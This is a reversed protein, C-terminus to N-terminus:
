QFRFTQFEDEGATSFLRFINFCDITYLLFVYVLSRVKSICLPIVKQIKPDTFVLKHFLHQNLGKWSIDFKALHEKELQSLLPSLTSAAFM